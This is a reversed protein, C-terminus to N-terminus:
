EQVCLETASNDVRNFYEEKGMGNELTTCYFSYFVGKETMDGVWISPYLLVHTAWPWSMTLEHNNEVRSAWCSSKYVQLWLTIGKLWRNLPMHLGTLTWHVSIQEANSIPHRWVNHSTPSFSRLWPTFYSLMLWCFITKKDFYFGFLSLKLSNINM